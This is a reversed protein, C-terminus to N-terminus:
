KKDHDKPQVWILFKLVELNDSLGIHALVILWESVSTKLQQCTARAPKM